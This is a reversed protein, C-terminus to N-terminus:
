KRPPREVTWCFMARVESNPVWWVGGTDDFIIGWYKDHDQSRNEVFYAEGARNDKSIVIMPITPNLQTIM